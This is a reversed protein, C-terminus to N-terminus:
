KGATTAPIADGCPLSQKGCTRAPSQCDRRSRSRAASVTPFRNRSPDTAANSWSASPPFSWSVVACSGPPRCGVPGAPVAAGPCGPRMQERLQPASQEQRSRVQETVPDHSLADAPYDAAAFGLGLRVAVPKTTPKNGALIATTTTVTTLNNLTM